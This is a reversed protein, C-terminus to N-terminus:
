SYILHSILSLLVHDNSAITKLPISPLASHVAFADLLSPTAIFNAFTAAADYGFSRRSGIMYIATTALGLLIGALVPGRRPMAPFTVAKHPRENTSAGM